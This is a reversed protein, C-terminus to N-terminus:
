QAFQISGVVKRFTNEYSSFRDQPAIGLAYFFTGDQLLVTFVAIREDQNTGPSRNVLTTRLWQRGGLTTRTYNATRRVSPNGAALSAVFQETAANIDRGENEEVGIVMGHTVVGQGEADGFAGDPAFTVSNNGPLERWNSPVSIRFVDGETYTKYSSSPAAVRGPDLTGGGAPARGASSATAEKTTPAPAMQQLRAQATTFTRTDTVPNQIRLLAAERTIAEYRNGPDPHSSLWEPGGSGGQKEITQFMSAMERPDYGAAAMIHSGLLDAQREYERSFRLFYTGLGIETGQAVVGGWKGGIISGLVAGALTGIEYKQAKTAQATGHRLAVHSIEHALVSAAEGQTRSKAIMGRYLYLPGGPLAFANIESVNVVKFSYRFEPHRFERPISAILRQGTSATWSTVDAERLIPLQKEVEAAAQQGLQVDEAPTYKNQPATIVTQGSITAAALMLSVAAMPLWPSFRFHTRATM